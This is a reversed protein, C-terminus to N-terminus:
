FHRAIDDGTENRNSTQRQGRHDVLTPHLRALDLRLRQRREVVEQVVFPVPVSEVVRNEDAEAAPDGVVDQPPRHIGSDNVSGTNLSQPSAYSAQAGQYAAELCAIHAVVRETHQDAHDDQDDADDRGPLFKRQFLGGGQGEGWSCPSPWPPPGYSSVIGCDGIGAIKLTSVNRGSTPANMRISIGRGFSRGSGCPSCPSSDCPSGSEGVGASGGSGARLRMLITASTMAPSFKRIESASNPANLLPVGPICNTSFRGQIVM